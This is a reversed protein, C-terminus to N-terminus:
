PGRIALFRRLANIFSSTDLSEILEIHIARVTLCTFIVAWRKNCAAGGRTRRTIIQWPGFVDVGVFTFPPAPTLRQIPLDAMRQQVQQGRLKRCKVCHHIVSNVLRKGGIIWYGKARIAGHTFHRGQHKVEHHHHRAILRTIHNSGPLIIPHREEVNLEARGLRGGVRLMGDSDIVPNLKSLPSGKSLKTGSKIQGLRKVFTEQRVNKIMVMEARKRSQVVNDGPQGDTTQSSPQMDTRKSETRSRAASILKSMGKILSSWSSFRTFRTTGLATSRQTATALAKVESRVEPDNAFLEPDAQSESTSNHGDHDCLFRPGRLWTSSELEKARVSRTACDAPNLHTPVYRWEEPSSSKRIREVRNAVYTYFRRTENAIYSLVVKSDSYYTISCPKITREQVVLEVIEVALVAACLELRPITTAHPPALKAKGFVFTVHVQGDPQTSRLYCVAAIGRVSADCFIHLETSTAQALPAPTYSRPIELQELRSLSQCWEEWAPRHEDHLPQDWNEFHRNKLDTSMVRLLMKGKIIVPSAIGLPDFLSNIVSLVGRKTFPKDEDSVRFSFTDTELNWYVGLSRQTPKTVQSLDLNCLDSAGSARDETPFANTVNPDNSAVKHLRLNATALMAQTRQLLDISEASGPLSKLGDDVYFDREVFERADSGFQAEEEQATKRLGFAAVAPSSTNGFLYVKMRYEIVAGDPRNDKYWLFRLFDRHEEKVVFSHFMQEVDAM